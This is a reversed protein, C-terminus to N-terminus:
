RGLLFMLAHLIVENGGLLDLANREWLVLWLRFIEALVGSYFELMEMSVM